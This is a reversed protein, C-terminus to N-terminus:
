KYTTRRLFRPKKGGTFNENSKRIARRNDSMAMLTAANGGPFSLAIVKWFFKRFSYLMDDRKKFLEICTLGLLVALIFATIALSIDNM